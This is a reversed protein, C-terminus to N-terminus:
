QGNNIGPVINDPNEFHFFFDGDYFINGDSELWPKLSMTVDQEFDKRRIRVIVNQGPKGILHPVIESRRKAMVGNVAVIMDGPKLGSSRSPYFHNQPPTHPSLRALEESSLVQGDDKLYIGGALGITEAKVFGRAELANICRENMPERWDRRLMTEKWNRWYGRLGPTNVHELPSCYTLIGDVPRVMLQNNQTCGSLILAFLWAFSISTLRWKIIM